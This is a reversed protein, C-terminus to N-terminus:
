ADSGAARRLAEAVTAAQERARERTKDGEVGVADGVGFVTDFRKHRLSDPRVELHGRLPGERYALESEELLAPPRMPPVVHLLDYRLVDQSLSRGKAVSFVAEHREPRVEVLDYGSFVHVDDREASQEVLAAYDASVVEDPAATAFTLTTQERVGTQRWLADARLLLRLPASGGKHPTSPATFLAEGGDFARVMEWTRAAQDYGYVSCIGHTGLHEKLGRIRGWHGETGLAVVLYDYHVETGAELYVAQTRPAVRAVRDQIWTVGAPVRSPERSQTAEKELGETGVRMWSPQDYHHSSPEVLAVESILPGDALSELV